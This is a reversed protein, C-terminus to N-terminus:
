LYKAAAIYAAQAETGSNKQGFPLVCPQILGIPTWIALAERSIGEKLVFSNYCAVSDSIWYYQYGSAKEIQHTGTPLNPARKEIQTNVLRYDGVIRLKCETIEAEDATKHGPAKKVIHPRSAWASLSREYSGNALAAEAWHQIILGQAHNWRPQPVAQPKYDPIFKLEIPETRFPKPLSNNAGEFAAQHEDIVDWITSCQTEPLATCVEIAKIDFPKTDVSVGENAQWWKRLEIESIHCVLPQYQKLLQKDVSIDLDMIAPIGFLASCGAPLQKTTAVLAPIHLIQGKIKVWLVGQEKFTADGTACRIPDVEVLTIDRLLERRATTVDSYTDVAVPIIHGTSDDARNGTPVPVVEATARLARGGVFASRVRTMVFCNARKIPVLVKPARDSDVSNELSANARLQQKIKLGLTTWKTHPKILFYADMYEVAEALNRFSRYESKVGQVIAKCEEWTEYIGIDRGKRVAYYKRMKSTSPREVGKGM